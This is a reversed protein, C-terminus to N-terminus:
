LGMLTGTWQAHAAVGAQITWKRRFDDAVAGDQLWAKINRGQFLVVVFDQIELSM